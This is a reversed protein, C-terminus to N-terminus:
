VEAIFEAETSIISVTPQWQARYTIATGNLTAVIGIISRRTNIDTGHAADVYLALQMDEKPELFHLDPDELSRRHFSIHDLYM